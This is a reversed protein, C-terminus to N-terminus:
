RAEKRCFGDKMRGIESERMFDEHPQSGLNSRNADGGSAVADSRVSGNACRADDVADGEAGLGDCILGCAVDISESCCIALQKRQHKMADIALAPTRKGKAIQCPKDIVAKRATM